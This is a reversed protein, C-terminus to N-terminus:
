EIVLKDIDELVGKSYTSSSGAAHGTNYIVLAAEYNGDSQELAKSLIYVGAEINQYPDLMNDLGLDKKIWGHNSKNIQMLGYDGTSSIIDDNFQSEHYCHGVTDKFYEEIGYNELTKYLYDQYEHSLYFEYGEDIVYYYEHTVITEPEKHYVANTVSINSLNGYRESYMQIYESAMDKNIKQMQEDDPSEKHSKNDETVDPEKNETSEYEKLTHTLTNVKTSLVFTGILLLFAIVILASMAIVFKNVTGEDVIIYRTRGINKNRRRSRVRLSRRKDCKM